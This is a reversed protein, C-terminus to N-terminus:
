QIVDDLYARIKAMVEERVAPPVMAEAQPRLLDFLHKFTVDDSQAHLEKNAVQTVQDFWGSEYLKLKLQKFIIDYNGLSVLHNQIQTRISDLEDAM